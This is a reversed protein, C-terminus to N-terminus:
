NAGADYAEQAAMWFRAPLGLPKQLKTAIEPTIPLNGRVIESLEATAIGTQTAIDRLSLSQEAAVELLLEGPLKPTLVAPEKKAPVIVSVTM